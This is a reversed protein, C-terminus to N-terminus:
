NHKTKTKNQKTKNQKIKNIYIYIFTIIIYIILLIIIIKEQMNGLQKAKLKMSKKTKLISKKTYFIIEIMVIPDLTKDVNQNKKKKM